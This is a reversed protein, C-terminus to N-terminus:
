TARSTQKELLFWVIDDQRFNNDRHYVFGYDRLVLDPFRDLMEGAFDRKFLKKTHGRYILEVPSPNYYEAILVYRTSCRYLLDYVDPLMDPNMHILVGKTLALDWTRTPRFELVTQRFVEAEPMNTKLEDAAKQNIEVGALEVGPLLRQLAMLNLGINAGLEIISKIGVARKLVQGFFATNSAVWSSGRNRETYEDGFRGNWFEEQETKYGM